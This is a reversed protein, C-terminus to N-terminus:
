FHQALNGFDRLLYPREVSAVGFRDFRPAYTRLRRRFRRTHHVDPAHASEDLLDSFL